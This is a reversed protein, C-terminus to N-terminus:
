YKLTPVECTEEIIDQHCQCAEVQIQFFRLHGSFFWHIRGKETISGLGTLVEIADVECMFFFVLLFIVRGSCMCLLEMQHYWKKMSWTPDWYRM